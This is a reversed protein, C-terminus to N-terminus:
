LNKLLFAQKEEPSMSKTGVVAHRHKEYYEDVTEIVRAPVGVAVSNDPIDRTVVAGCGIIVNSGITVGPMVIANLGIHVNNGVTIRGFLDDDKGYGLNRTVWLGGDHTTFQVGATVRVHDGLTILYPESGFNVGKYVEGGRGIRVGKLRYLHKARGENGLHNFLFERCKEKLKKGISM